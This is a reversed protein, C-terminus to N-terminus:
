LVDRVSLRLTIHKWQDYKDAPLELPRCKQNRVARVASDAASHFFPDSTYRSKDVIDASAVTYDPNYSVSLEVVMNQMDPGGLPVNWCAEIQRRLIDAEAITLHTDEPMRTLGPQGAGIVNPQNAVLAIKTFGAAKVASMVQMIQNYSAKKDGRLFVQPDSDTNRLTKLKPGLEELTVQQQEVYVRDSADISIIIKQETSCSVGTLCLFIAVTCYWVTKKVLALVTDHTMVM